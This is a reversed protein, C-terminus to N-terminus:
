TEGMMPLNMKYGAIYPGARAITFNEGLSSSVSLGAIEGAKFKYISKAELWVENFGTVYRGNASIGSTEDFFYDGEIAISAGFNKGILANNADHPTFTFDRWAVGAFAAARWGEGVLQWGAEAELGYGLAEIKHTFGPALETDYAFHYAKTWARLIPGPEHLHGLPSYAIGNYMHYTDIGSAGIGGMLWLNAARLPSQALAFLSAFLVLGTIASKQAM